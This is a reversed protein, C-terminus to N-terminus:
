RTSGKGIKKGTLIYITREISTATTAARARDAPERDTDAAAARARGAVEDLGGLSLDPEGDVSPGEEVLRDRLECAALDAAALQRLIAAAAELDGQRLARIAVGAQGSAMAGFAGFTAAYGGGALRDIQARADDLELATPTLM